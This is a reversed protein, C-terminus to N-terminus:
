NSALRCRYEGPTCRIRRKFARSFHAVNGFGLHAAVEKVSLETTRLLTCAAEIKNALVYQYPGMGAQKKFVRTLHERSINFSAAMDGVSFECDMNAQIFAHVHGVMQRAPQHVASAERSSALAMLLDNVMRAGEAQSLICAFGKHLRFGLLRELVPHCRPLHYVAGYTRILDRTQILAAQGTFDLFVFRWPATAGKPYGYAIDSDHSECLFAMGPGIEHSGSGDRFRGFGALTYQFIAHPDDKRDLGRQGYSSRRQTETGVCLPRSAQRMRGMCRTYLFFDKSADM